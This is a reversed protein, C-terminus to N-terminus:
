TEYHGYLSHKCYRELITGDTVSRDEMHVPSVPAYSYEHKCDSLCNFLMWTCAYLYTYNGTDLMMINM